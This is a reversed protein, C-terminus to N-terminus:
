SHAPWMSYIFITPNVELIKNQKISQVHLHTKSYLGIPVRLTCQYTNVHTMCMRNVCSAEYRLDGAKTIIKSDKEPQNDVEIQSQGILSRYIVHLARIM